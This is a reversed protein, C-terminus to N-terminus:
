DSAKRRERHSRRDRRITQGKIELPFSIGQTQSRRDVAARRVYPRPARRRDPAIRRDEDVHIGSITTPFVPPAGDRRRETGARQQWQRYPSLDSSMAAREQRHTEGSVYRRAASAFVYLAILLAGLGLIGVLTLLAEM